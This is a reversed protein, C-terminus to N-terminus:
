ILEGCWDLLHWYDKIFNEATEKERFSLLTHSTPKNSVYFFGDIRKHIYYRTKGELKRELSRYHNRLIIIKYLAIFDSGVCDLAKLKTDIELQTGRDRTEYFNIWTKMREKFFFLWASNVFVFSIEFL